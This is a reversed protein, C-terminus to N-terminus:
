SEREKVPLYYKLVTLGGALKEKQNEELSNFLDSLEKVCRNQHDKFFSRGAETLSVFYKRDDGTADERSIFGMSILPKLMRTMSGKQIDLIRSIQGPSLKQEIDLVALIKIQSKRLKVDGNKIKNVIPNIYHHFSPLLEMILEAIRTEDAKQM